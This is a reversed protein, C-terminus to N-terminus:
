LIGDLDDDQSEEDKDEQFDSDTELCSTDHESEIPARDPKTYHIPVVHQPRSMEIYQQIRLLQRNKEKVISIENSLLAKKERQERELVEQTALLSSRHRSTNLRTVTSLRM